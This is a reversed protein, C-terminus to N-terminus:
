AAELVLVYDPDLDDDPPLYLDASGRTTKYFLAWATDALYFFPNGEDDVLYRGNPIVKM